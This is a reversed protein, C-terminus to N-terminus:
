TVIETRWSFWRREIWGLIGDLAFLVIVLIITWAIIGATDFFQSAIYMKSGIGSSASLAEGFVALRTALSLSVRLGSFISPMAAPIVVLRLLGFRSARLSRIMSYLDEPVARIGDYTNVTVIPFAIVFIIFFVRVEISRFWILSLLVWTIAPVAMAVKVLPLLVDRSGSLTAMLVAIVFGVVVSFTFGWFLRKLTENIAEYASPTQLIEVFKAAVDGVRPFLYEPTFMSAVHWALVGAAALAIYTAYRQARRVDARRSRRPAPAVAATQTM